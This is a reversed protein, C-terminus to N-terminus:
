HDYIPVSEGTVYIAKNSDFIFKGEPIGSTDKTLYIETGIEWFYKFGNPLKGWNGCPQCLFATGLKSVTMNFSLVGSDINGYLLHKFDLYGSAKAKKIIDRSRELTFKNSKLPQGQFCDVVAKVAQLQFDQIKFQLKM